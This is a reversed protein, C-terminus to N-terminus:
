PGAESVTAAPMIIDRPIPPRRGDLYEAVGPDVTRVKERFELLLTDNMFGTIAYTAEGLPHHTLWTLAEREAAKLDPHMAEVYSKLLPHAAPLDTGIQGYCSPCALGGRQHNGVREMCGVCINKGCASCTVHLNDRLGSVLVFETLERVHEESHDGLIAGCRACRMKKKGFFGM